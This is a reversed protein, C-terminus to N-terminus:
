SSGEYTESSSHCPFTSPTIEPIVHVKPGTGQWAIKHKCSSVALRSVTCKKAQMPMQETLWLESLEREYCGIERAHYM